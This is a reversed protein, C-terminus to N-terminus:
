RNDKADYFITNLGNFILVKYNNQLMFAHIKNKTSKDEFNDTITEVCVVKPRFRNWDNSQLVELDLGDADVSLFDIDKDGVHQLFISDLRLVSIDLEDAVINGESKRHSVLSDSLSYSNFGEFRVARLIAEQNSVGVNLNIDRDRQKNFVEIVKPNPDINIGTWGRDYFRKTNSFKIPDFAGVDIYFGSSKLGLFKDIIIDELYQSHTPTFKKLLLKLIYFCTRHLTNLLGYIRIQESLFRYLSAPSNIKLVM